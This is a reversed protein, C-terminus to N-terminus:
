DIGTVKGSTFVIKIGLDKYSYTTKDGLSFKVSPPGLSGEIEAVTM